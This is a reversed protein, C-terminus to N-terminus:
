TWWRYRFGRFAKCMIKRRPKRWTASDFDIERSVPDVDVISFSGRVQGKTAFYVRDGFNVNKPMRGFTWYKQHGDKLRKHALVEDNTYIVIDTM